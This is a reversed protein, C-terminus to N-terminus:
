KKMIIALGLVILGGIILTERNNDIKGAINSIESKLNQGNANFFHQKMFDEQDQKAQAKAQDIQDKFIDMDPHISFVASLAEDGGRKVCEALQQALGKPNNAPQMGYEQVLASAGGRNNWATYDYLTIGRNM